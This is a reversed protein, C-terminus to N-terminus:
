FQFYLFPSYSASLCVGVALLALAGLPLAWALRPTM